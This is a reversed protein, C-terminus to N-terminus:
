MEETIKRNEQINVEMQTIIFEKGMLNVIKENERM